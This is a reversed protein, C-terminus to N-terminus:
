RAAVPARVLVIGGVAGTRPPAAAGVARKEGSREIMSETLPVVGISSLRQSRLAHSAFPTASSRAFREQACGTAPSSHTFPCASRVRTASGRQRPHAAGDRRLREVLPKAFGARRQLM